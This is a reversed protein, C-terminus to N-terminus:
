REGVTFTIEAQDVVTQSPPQIVEGEPIDEPLEATYFLRVQAIYEGTTEPNRLHMTLEMKPDITEIINASAVLNGDRDQIWV